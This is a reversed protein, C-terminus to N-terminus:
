KVYNKFLSIYRHAIYSQTHEKLHKEIKEKLFMPTNLSELIATSLSKESGNEFIQSLNGVAEVLGGHKSVVLKCGCAMGELAVLGFPEKWKSPVVM